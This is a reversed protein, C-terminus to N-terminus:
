KSITLEGESLETQTFTYQYSDGEALEWVEAAGLDYWKEGSGNADIAINAGLNNADTVVASYTFVGDESEMQAWTWDNAACKIWIEGTDEIPGSCTKWRYTDASYDLTINLEAGFKINDLGKWSGEPNEEDPAVFVQIEKEWDGEGRVKFEQGEKATVKASYKGDAEKTMAVPASGWGAGEEFNGVVELDFEEGCFAPTLITITYEAAAACPKANWKKCVFFVVAADAAEAETFSLNVEGFGSDSINEESGGKALIIDEGNHSWVNGWNANEGDYQIPRGSIAGEENPYAVYKYWGDGIAEFAPASAIDWGNDRHSGVFLVEADECPAEDFRIVITVAGETGEVAPTEIDVSPTPTPVPLEEEKNDKKCSSFSLAVAAAAMLMFGFKKM